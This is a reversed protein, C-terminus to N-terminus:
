LHWPMQGLSHVYQYAVLEHCDSCYIENFGVICEWTNPPNDDDSVLHASTSVERIDSLIHAHQGAPTSFAGAVAVSKINDIVWVPEGLGNFVPNGDSDTAQPFTLADQEAVSGGSPVSDQNQPVSTCSLVLLFSLALFLKKM